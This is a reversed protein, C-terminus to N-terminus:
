REILTDPCKKENKKRRSYEHATMIRLRFAKHKFRLPMKTLQLNNLRQKVKTEINTGPAELTHGILASSERV